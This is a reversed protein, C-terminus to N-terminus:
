PNHPSKFITRHGRAMAYAGSSPLRQEVLTHSPDRAQEPPHFRPGSGASIQEPQQGPGLALVAPLQRLVSAM